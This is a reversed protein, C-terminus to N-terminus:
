DYVHSGKEIDWDTFVRRGKWERLDEDTQPLNEIQSRVLQGIARQVNLISIQRDITNTILDTRATDLYV